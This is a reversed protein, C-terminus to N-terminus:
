GTDHMAIYNNCRRPQLTSLQQKEHGMIVMFVTNQSTPIRLSRHQCCPPPQTPPASLLIFTGLGPPSPPQAWVGLGLNAQGHNTANHYTSLPM